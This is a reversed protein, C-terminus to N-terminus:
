AFWLFNARSFRAFWKFFLLSFSFPFSFPFSPLVFRLRSMFHKQKYLGISEVKPHDDFSKYFLQKLEEKKKPKGTAELWFFNWPMTASGMLKAEGCSSRICVQRRHLRISTAPKSESSQRLLWLLLQSWKVRVKAKLRRGMAEWWVGGLWIMTASTMLEPNAM